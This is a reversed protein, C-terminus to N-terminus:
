DRSLFLRDGRKLFSFKEEMIDTCIVRHGMEALCVGTILGVYGTGAVAIKM